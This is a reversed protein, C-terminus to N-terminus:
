LSIVVSSKSGAVALNLTAGKCRPVIGDEFTLAVTNYVVKWDYPARHTSVLALTAGSM